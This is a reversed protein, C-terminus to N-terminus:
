RVEVGIGRILAIGLNFAVWVLLWVPTFLVQVLCGTCGGAFLSQLLCGPGIGDLGVAARIPRRAAPETLHELSSSHNGSWFRVGGWAPALLDYTSSLLLGELGFWVAGGLLPGLLLAGIGSGESVGGLALFVACAALLSGGFLGLVLGGLLGMALASLPSVSTLEHPGAHWCVPQRFRLPWGKRARWGVGAKIAPIFVVIIGLFAIAGFGGGVLERVPAGVASAVGRALALSSAVFVVWLVAAHKLYPGTEFRQIVTESVVADAPGGLPLAPPPAEPEGKRAPLLDYGCSVCIDDSVYNLAGCKPCPLRDPNTM